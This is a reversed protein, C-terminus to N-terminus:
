LKFTQWLLYADTDQEEHYECFWEWGIYSNRFWKTNLFLYGMIYLFKLYIKSLM